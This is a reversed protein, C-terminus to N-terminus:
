TSQWPELLCILLKRSENSSQLAKHEVPKLDMLISNTTENEKLLVSIKQIVEQHTKSNRQFNRRIDEATKLDARREYRESYTFSPLIEGINVKGSSCSGKWLKM